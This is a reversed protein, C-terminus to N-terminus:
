LDFILSKLNPFHNNIYQPTSKSFFVHVLQLEMVNSQHDVPTTTGIDIYGFELRLTEIHKPLVNVVNNSMILMAQLNDQYVLIFEKLIKLGRRKELEVTRSTRCSTAFTIMKDRRLVCEILEPNMFLPFDYFSLQTNQRKIFDEWYIVIKFKIM